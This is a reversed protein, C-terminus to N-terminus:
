KIFLQIFKKANKSTNLRISRFYLKISISEGPGLKLQELIQDTKQWRFDFSLRDLPKDSLLDMWRFEGQSVFLLNSNQDDYKNTLGRFDNLIPLTAIYSLPKSPNSVANQTALPLTEQRVPINSLIVVSQLYNFRYDTHYESFVRYANYQTPATGILSVGSNNYRPSLYYHGDNLATRIPIYYFDDPLKLLPLGAMFYRLDRNIEIFLLNSFVPHSIVLDFRGTSLDYAFYPAENSPRGIDTTLNVLLQNIVDQFNLISFGSINSGSVSRTFFQNTTTRFRISFQRGTMDYNPFISDLTANFRLITMKYDSAKPLIPKELAIDIVAPISSTATIPNFLTLNAVINEGKSQFTYFPVAM